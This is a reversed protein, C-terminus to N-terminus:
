GVLLSLAGDIWVETGTIASADDSVLFLALRAVEDPSHMKGGTLPIPRGDFEVPLRIRELDRRVTSEEIQTDIWGPCIVNVRIRDRALELAMKKAFVQQGAKACAYATSGVGSFIRTGHVSSTILAAGGRKRLWPITYKFTLFTGKLNVDITRSWEEPELLEVPAWVGNVGANAVVIDIRDWREGLEGVAREVQAPEAVDAVLALAQGGEAEVEAATAGARDRDRDLAGVLAGASALARAISKGIGSGAGTVLAVRGSLQSRDGM